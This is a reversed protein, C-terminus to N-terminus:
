NYNERFVTSSFSSWFLVRIHVASDFFIHASRIKGSAGYCLARVVKLVVLRKIEKMFTDYYCKKQLYKQKNKLKFDISVLAIFQKLMWSVM